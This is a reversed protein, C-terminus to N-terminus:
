DANVLVEAEGYHAIANLLIEMVEIGVCFSGPYAITDIAKVVSVGDVQHLKIFDKGSANTTAQTRYRGAVERRDHQCGYTVKLSDIWMELRDGGRIRLELKPVKRHQQNDTM